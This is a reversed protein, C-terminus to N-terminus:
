KQFTTGQEDTSVLNSGGTGHPINLVMGARLRDPSKLTDRNAEYIRRWKTANGYVEPQAAISWLTDGPKVTYTGYTQAVEGGSVSLEESLDVEPPAVEGLSVPAATGQKPAVRSPIEVEAELMQRTSKPSVTPAPASGVLYGRNGGTVDLDVRPVDVVKATSRCGAALGVLCCGILGRVVSRM